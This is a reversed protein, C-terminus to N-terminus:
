KSTNSFRCEPFEYYFRRDEPGAKPVKHILVKKHDAGPFWFFERVAEENPGIGEVSLRTLGSIKEPIEARVTLLSLHINSRNRVLVKIRGSESLGIQKFEFLDASEAILAEEPSFPKPGSMVAQWAKNGLKLRCKAWKSRFWENFSSAVKMFGIGRMEFVSEPTCGNSPIFYAGNGWYCFGIQILIKGDCQHIIRPLRVRLTYSRKPDRFLRMPGFTKLFERYEGPLSGFRTECESIDSSSVTGESLFFKPTNVEAMAAKIQDSLSAKEDLISM